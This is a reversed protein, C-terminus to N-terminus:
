DTMPVVLMGTTNIHEGKGENRRWGGIDRYGWIGIDRPLNQCLFLHFSSAKQTNGRLVTKSRTTLWVKQPNYLCCSFWRVPKSLRTLHKARRNIKVCLCFVVWFHSLWNQKSRCSILCTKGHSKMWWVVAIYSVFLLPLFGQKHYRSTDGIELFLM